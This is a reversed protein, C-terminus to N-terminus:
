KEEKGRRTLAPEFRAEIARVGEKTSLVNDSVLVHYASVQSGPVLSVRPINRAARYLNQSAGHVITVGKIGAKDLFLAVKKTKPGIAELDAVLFKGEKVKSSLAQALALKRMRQPLSLRAVTGKPGHAIGGGVFLPASKPGHRARGTGKQRYWKAKTLSVEGRGKTKAGATRQNALFVRVAQALLVPNPKQGFIEKPLDLTAKKTGDAAYVPVTLGGLKVRPNSIRRTPKEKSSVAKKM